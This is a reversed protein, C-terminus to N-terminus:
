DALARQLPELCRLSDALGGPRNRPLWIEPLKEVTLALKEGLERRAGTPLLALSSEKPRELRAIGLQAALILAESVWLLERSVREQEETRSSFSRLSEATKGLRDVAEELGRPDLGRYRAHSLPDQPSILLHFLATGNKPSAGSVRHVTGLEVLARGLTGTSDDLVHVGLLSALDLASPERASASNWAFGAGALFGPYSAPLPQLHGNDGWDTILYGLAGAACGAVSAAALNQLANDIRGGLSNWSSTGPCAYFELGAARLRAMEDAFPHDAEYGWDLAIADAPVRRLIKPEALVMDAWFQIRRGHKSSLRHVKELFDIYVGTRGRERCVESSRGRGLDFTEDFGINFLSSSFNPLLQGYLDRLLDLSRPDLPCLSFPEKRDSFPHQVGEPCEALQRYRDNRLWRHFHGFSNQNPVLDVFRGRCHVDLARIEDPTLPSAGEWVQEHGRYAFTHESYLQIQNIKWSALLDVLSLLTEMTPVKNRSIDLLVGRHSFDPSDEIEIGRIEEPPGTSAAQHLGLWQGLTAVGYFLGSGSAAILDIGPPRVVLRYGDAGLGSRPDITLRFPTSGAGGQTRGGRHVSLGLDRLAAILRDVAPESEVASPAVEV